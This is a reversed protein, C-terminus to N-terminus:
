DRSRAAFPQLARRHLFSSDDGIILMGPFTGHKVILGAPRAASPFQFPLLVSFSGGPDLPDSLAHPPNTGQSLWSACSSYRAGQQDELAVLADPARQRVRKAVSSVQIEALWVRVDPASPCVPTASADALEVRVAATCWDDWCRREGAAFIHRPSLLSTILLILAYGALYSGLLRAWWRLRHSRRRLASILMLLLCLVSFLVSALFWLDLLTM